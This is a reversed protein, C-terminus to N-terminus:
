EGRRLFQLIVINEKKELRLCILKFPIRCGRGLRLNDLLKNSTVYSNMVFIM